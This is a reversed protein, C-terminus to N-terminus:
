KTNELASQLGAMLPSSSVFSAVDDTTIEVNESYTLNASRKLQMPKEIEPSLRMKFDHMTIIGVKDTKALGIVWDANAAIFQSGYIQNLDFHEKQGSNSKKRSHHIVILSFKYRKRLQDLKDMMTKMSVEDSMSQYTLRQLSDIIVIEPRHEEILSEIYAHGVPTDFPITIGLPAVKFGSSIEPMDGSFDQVIKPIFMKLMPHAMELSLFLVKKPGAVNQWRLFDHGAALTMGMGIAMQTKGVGPEGVIFGFSNEPIRNEIIWNVKIETDLFEQLTYVTKISEKNEVSEDDPLLAAFSVDEGLPYGYKARARAITDVLIKHRARQTRNVYKGWKKDLHDLIAYMQEDTFGLGMQEAMLYSIYMLGGSRKEKFTDRAQEESMNLVELIADTMDGHALAEEISPVTEVDIEIKLEDSPDGFSDKFVQGDTKGLNGGIISVPVPEGNYWPKHETPSRHGHNETYPVRLLQNIDWGSKDAGLKFALARNRNEIFDPAYVKELKWYVHQNGEVSSQVIASPMPINEAKCFEEWNAPASNNDFDAWLVQSGIANERTPTPRIDGEPSKFASPSYYVDRGEAAFQMIAQGLAAKQSSPIVLQKFDEGGKMTALYIFFPTEVGDFVYDFFQGINEATSGM